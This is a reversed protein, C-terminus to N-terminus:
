RLYLFCFLGILTIVFTPLPFKFMLIIWGLLPLWFPALVIISALDM